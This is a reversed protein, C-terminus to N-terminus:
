VNKNRSPTVIHRRQLSHRFSVHFLWLVCSPLSLLMGFSCPMEGRGKSLIEGSALLQCLFQYPPESVGSQGQVQGFVTYQIFRVLLAWMESNLSSQDMLIQDPQEQLWNAIKAIVLAAGTTVADNATQKSITEPDPLLRKTTM